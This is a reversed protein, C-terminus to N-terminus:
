FLVSLSPRVTLPDLRMYWPRSTAAAISDGFGVVLQFCTPPWARYSSLTSVNHWLSAVTQATRLVNLFINAWVAAKIKWSDTEGYRECYESLQWAPHPPAM